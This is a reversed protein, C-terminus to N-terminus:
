QMEETPETIEAWYTEGRKLIGIDGYENDYYYFGSFDLGKRYNDLKAKPNYRAIDYSWVDRAVYPSKYAVLVRQERQPQKESLKHWYIM